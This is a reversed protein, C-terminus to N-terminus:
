HSAWSATHRVADRRDLLLFDILWSHLIEEERDKLSVWRAVSREADNQSGEQNM